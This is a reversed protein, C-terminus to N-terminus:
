VKAEFALHVFKPLTHSSGYIRADMPHLIDIHYGHYVHYTMEGLFSSILVVGVLAHFDCVIM